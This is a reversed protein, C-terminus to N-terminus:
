RTSNFSSARSTRRLCSFVLSSQEVSVKSAKPQCARDVELCEDEKVSQLPVFNGNSIPNSCKSNQNLNEKTQARSRDNTPTDIDYTSKSKMTSTVTKTQTILGCASSADASRTMISSPDHRFSNSPTTSQSSCTATSFSSVSSTSAGTSNRLQDNRVPVTPVRRQQVIPMYHNTGNVLTPPSISSSSSSSCNSKMKGPTEAYINNREMESYDATARKNAATLPAQKPSLISKM